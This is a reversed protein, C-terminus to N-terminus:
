SNPFPSASRPVGGRPTEGEACHPYYCSGQLSTLLLWLSATHLTDRATATVTLACLLRSEFMMMLGVSPLVDPDHPCWVKGQVGPAMRTVTGVLEPAGTRSRLATNKPRSIFVVSPQASQRALGAQVQRSPPTGEPPQQELCSIPLPPCAKTSPPPAWPLPGWGSPLRPRGHAEKHPLSRPPLGQSM